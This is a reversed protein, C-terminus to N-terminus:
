MWTWEIQPSHDFYVTFLLPSLVGGQKVGLTLLSFNTSICWKWKTCTTQRLYSDLILRIFFAPMKRNLLLSFLKGYHVRDFAKSTDLLYAYVNSGRDM